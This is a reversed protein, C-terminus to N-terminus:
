APCTGHLHDRDLEHGDMASRLGETGADPPLDLTPDLADGRVPLSTGPGTPEARWLRDFRLRKAGTLGGSADLGPFPRNTPHYTGSSGITGYRGRRPSRTPTTWSSRWRTPVKRSTGSRLPRTSTPPPTATGRRSANGRTSPRVRSRSTGWVRDNPDPSPITEDTWVFGRSLIPPDTVGRSRGFTIPFPLITDSHTVAPFCPGHHDKEGGCPRPSPVVPQHSWEVSRFGPRSTRGTRRRDARVIANLRLPELAPSCRMGFNRKGASKESPIAM